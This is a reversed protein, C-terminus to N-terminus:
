RIKNCIKLEREGMAILLFAFPLNLVQAFSVMNHVLYCILCVAYMYLVPYEKAKKMCRRIFSLFIGLYFCIGLIGTNVLGTLLENHANTLRSGGFNERLMVAVDPLSYAYKSFCDPGAGFLRHLLPMKEFICIGAQWTAGRGNGWSSNLLLGSSEELGPIGIWTNVGALFIWVLFLGALLGTMFKHVLKQNKRSIDDEEDKPWKYKLLFHIGLAMVGALLTANSDVIQVCLCHSDYNFGGPVLVRMVRVLQASFGWLFVLLFFNVLRNKKAIAIWLLVFFLAGWFLIVSSSGQCFGAMFAIITYIGYIWKKVNSASCFLFLCVGIPSLVSLYGCFWNINGLTSIFAPDRIELPILYLSFRDLIGLFFVVGSAGMAIYWIYSDGDWFVSIFFFLGCLALLLVLGIYWGETGWLAEQRYDSFATSMFIETAYLLVFIGTVSLNNWDILYAERHRHKLYLRQAGYAIGTLALIALAGLSCYILFRNKADGINVYGQDMFFPYVGFIMLLYATVFLNGAKKLM